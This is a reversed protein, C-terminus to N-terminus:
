HSLFKSKQDFNTWWPNEARTELCRRIICSLVIFHGSLIQTGNPKRHSQYYLRSYAQAWKLPDPGLQGRTTTELPLQITLCSLSCDILSMQYIMLRNTKVSHFRESSNDHLSSWVTIFLAIDKTFNLQNYGGHWLSVM